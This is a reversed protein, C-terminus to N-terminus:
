SEEWLADHARERAMVSDSQSFAESAGTASVSRSPGSAGATYDVSRGSMLSARSDPYAGSSGAPDGSGAFSAAGAAYEDRSSGSMLSLRARDQFPDEAVPGRSQNFGGVFPAGPGVDAPQAPGGAFAGGAAAHSMEPGSNPEPAGNYGGTGDQTDRVTYESQTIPAPPPIARNNRRRRALFFVILAGLLALVGM